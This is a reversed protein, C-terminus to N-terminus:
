QDRQCLLAREVGSSPEQSLLGLEKQLARRARHLRTWVTQPRVGLIRGIEEGSFGDVVHLLLVKRQGQSLSQLAKTVMERTEIETDMPMQMPTTPLHQGVFQRLINLRLWSKRGANRATNAAIAYLWTKLSVGEPFNKASKQLELFVDQSLEDLEAETIRPAFRRLARKVMTCYDLYLQGLAEMEGEALRSMLQMDTVNMEIKVARADLEDIRKTVGYGGFCRYIM